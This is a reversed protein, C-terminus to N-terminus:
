SGLVERVVRSLADLTFPKQLFTVNQDVQGHRYISNDAYGSMFVARTEPHTAHIQQLLEKGNMEPMVLDTVILHFREPQAMFLNFAIAGNEAEVVEYGLSRLTDGTFQRVTDNDEVLLITEAGGSLLTPAAEVEKQRVLDATRPWYVRIETGQGPESFAHITGGNQQVIGYVMSLGLGTGKGKAKTTFFPEFIKTRIQPDLGIGNDKVVFCISSDPRLGPISNGEPDLPLDVLTKISIQKKKIKEAKLGDTTTPQQKLGERIADRANVVLNIFVQELQAQDAKIHPLNPMLDMQIEIDELIWRRLMPQLDSLIENLDLVQPQHMQKRSFALLQRILNEASKGASLIQELESRGLGKGQEEKLLLIQTYGNIVTLLNNFDHAIGGALTGISEMKQAHVLQEELLKRETVDKLNGWFMRFEGNEDQEAHSTVLVTVVSGDKRRFRMEHDQIAKNTKLIELYGIRDKPDVYLETPIHVKQIEELSDYGFLKLGAPNIVKFYGDATSEFFVDVSQEFIRRYKKESKRLSEQTQYHDTLDRGLVVLGKREGSESFMPVKIVDYVKPTRNERPIIEIGRSLEGKQWALEDSEVCARFADRYYPNFEALELDTKGHYDVETLQFLELDAQNAEIWRGKGDKFCIIDPTSNILSRLLKENQRIESELNHLHTIDRSIGIIGIREGNPLKYPTKLTEQLTRRGDPYVIWEENRRSSGSEHVRRDNGRFFSATGHPFLDYDSLGILDEEKKAVFESFAKNCGLYNGELDKYFILDPISDMLSSILSKQDILISNQKQAQLRLFGQQTVQIIISWLFDMWEFFRSESVVPISDLVRKAGVYDIHNLTSYRRIEQEKVAEFLVQGTYLDALYCDEIEIRFKAYILGLECEFVDIHDKLSEPLDVFERCSLCDESTPEPKDDSIPCGGEMKSGYLWQNGPQKRLGVELGSIATFKALLSQFQILDVLKEFM